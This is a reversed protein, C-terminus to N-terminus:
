RKRRKFERNLWAARRRRAAWGALAGIALTALGAPEPLPQGQDQAQAHMRVPNSGRLHGREGACSPHAFGCGNEEDSHAALLTFVAGDSAMSFDSFGSSADLTGSLRGGPLFELALSLRQLGPLTEDGYRYDIMNWQQNGDAGAYWYRLSLLSDQQQGCNGYNCLNEVNLDVSGQAVAADTFLLELHLGDPTSPSHKVQQWTYLVDASAIAGPRAHAQNLL